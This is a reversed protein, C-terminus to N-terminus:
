GHNWTASPIQLFIFKGNNFNRIISFNLEYREAELHRWTNENYKEIRMSKEYSDNCVKSCISSCERDVQSLFSLGGFHTRSSLYIKELSVKVQHQLPNFHTELLMVM